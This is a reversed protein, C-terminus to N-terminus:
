ASAIKWPVGDPDTFCGLYGGWQQGAPPVTVAAGASEARAIIEDVEQASGADHSLVLQQFGTGEPDLGVDKALDKRQMLGLRLSGAVVTFDIYKAGYDRDVTLGLDAFFTKSAKPDAVGLLVGAETPKPPSQAAATDKKKDSSVKWVAGDPARFVGSFSGFLAKKAPKLIEGGAAAAAEVVAAVESPQDLVYSFIYGGFGAGETRAGTEAALDASGTLGLDGRGHLGMRAFSGYDQVQPSLVAAYFEKAGPVDEAGIIAINLPLSM